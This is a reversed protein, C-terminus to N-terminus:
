IGPSPAACRLFRMASAQSFSGTLETFESKLRLIKDGAVHVPKESRNIQSKVGRIGTSKLKVRRSALVLRELHAHFRLQGPLRAFTCNPLRAVV